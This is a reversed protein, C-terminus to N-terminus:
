VPQTRLVWGLLAIGLAALALLSGWSSAPTAVVVPPATPAVITFDSFSTVRGTITHNVADRSVTVDEWGAPDKWHMLKLESERAGSLALPDYPVTVLVGGTFVADTTIDFYTGGV